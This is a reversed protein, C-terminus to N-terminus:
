RGRAYHYEANEKPYKEILKDLEKMEKKPLRKEMPVKYNEYLKNYLNYMKQIEKKRKKEIDYVARLVGKKTLPYRKSKVKYKAM